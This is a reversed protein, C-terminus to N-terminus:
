SVARATWDIRCFYLDSCSMMAMRPMSSSESSSLSVTERARLACRNKECGNWTASTNVPVGPFYTSRLSVIEPNLPMMLPTLLNTKTKKRKKPIPPAFLPSPFLSVIPDLDFPFFSM